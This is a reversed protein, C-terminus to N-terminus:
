VCEHWTGNFAQSPDPKAFCGTCTNGVLWGSTYTIKSTDTDDVIVSKADLLTGALLLVLAATFSLQSVSTL